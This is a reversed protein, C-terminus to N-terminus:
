RTDVSLHSVWNNQRLGHQISAQKIRPYNKVFESSFKFAVVPLCPKYHESRVLCTLEIRKDSRISHISSLGIDDVLGISAKAKEVLSEDKAKHVDSVVTYYKSNELARALLRANKADHLSIRRYGDFGLYLFNSNSLRSDVFLSVSRFDSLPQSM